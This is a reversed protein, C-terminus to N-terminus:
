LENWGPVGEQSINNIKKNIQNIKELREKKASMSIVRREEKLNKLIIMKIIEEVDELTTERESILCQAVFSKEEGEFQKMIPEPEASDTTNM